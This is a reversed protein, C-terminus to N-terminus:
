QKSKELFIHARWQLIKFDTKDIVVVLIDFSTRENDCNLRAFNGFSCKAHCSHFNVQM